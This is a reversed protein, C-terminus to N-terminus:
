AERFDSEEFASGIKARLEKVGFFQDACTLHIEPNV